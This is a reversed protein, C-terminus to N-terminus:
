LTEKGRIIQLNIKQIKKENYMKEDAANITKDIYEDSNHKIEELGHSVSIIYPRNETENIKEYENNIRHWIAEAQEQYVDVFVILYEDGGLRIIFDSQRICKKIGDVVSIILEDGVEHGLTDNVEKLGNIDIFCVYAKQSNKLLEKNTVNLMELGARRNLVGTMSDYESFYKIREKSMKNITMLIAFALSIVYILLFIPEKSNLIYRIKPYLSTNFIGGIMCDNAIFSVVVWNGEGSIISKETNKSSYNINPIIYEYTFFGNTTILSGRENGKITNWEKPFENKFSINKKDEYMFSWEKEKNQANYIWYGNFDLLFVDGHSTSAINKFDQLLNKAYYNLVILGNLKGEEGMVPTALRIMPKIPQELQGNEVNLDLKSIYVQDKGLIRMDKFYYRNSKNQLDEKKVIFSGNEAYNIRIRENGDFDIYRVQDYINKKDAFLRWVNEIYEESKNNLIHYEFTDAIYLLDSILSDVKNSLIDSEITVMREENKIIETKQVEQTKVQLMVAITLYILGFTTFLLISFLVINIKEKRLGRFIM